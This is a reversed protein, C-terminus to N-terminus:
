EIHIDGSGTKVELLYGGSGVKGRYDNRSLTGEMTIPRNTSIKGSDTHAHLDFAASSPLAITVGGSGTELRWDGTLEGQAKIGGSGTAVKLPGRVGSLEVEGSGTSVRVRGPASQELRVDGSGTEGSFEGAVGNAHISGSGTSATVSGQISDVQIDGSGTEAHVEAGVRMVRIGGSGTEAKLPGQIGEVSQDGSGTEARLRTEKPVVVEYSISVNQRLSSEEIHGIRITNGDQEIPPHAELQRVKEEASPGGGWHDRAKIRGHVQVTRSDGARVQIGGSGTSIQLDIPGSVQLTRDFSGEAGFVHVPAAAVLAGLLGAALVTSRFRQKM